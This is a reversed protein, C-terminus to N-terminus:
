GRQVLKAEVEEMDYFKRRGIRMPPPLKGSKEWNSWTNWSVGYKAQVLAAATYVRGRIEIETKM